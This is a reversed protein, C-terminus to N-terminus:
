REVFIFVQNFFTVRFVNYSCNCVFYARYQSNLAVASGIYDVNTITSANKVIM